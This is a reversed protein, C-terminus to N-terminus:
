RDHHIKKRKFNTFAPLELVPSGERFPLTITTYICDRGQLLELKQPIVYTKKIIAEKGFITKCQIESVRNPNLFQRCFQNPWSYDTYPMVVRFTHDTTIAYIERPNDRYFFDLHQNNKWKLNPTSSVEQQHARAVNRTGKAIVTYAALNFGNQETANWKTEEGSPLYQTINRSDIKWQKEQNLRKNSENEIIKEILDKLPIPGKGPFLKEISTLNLKRIGAKFKVKKDTQTAFVPNVEEFKQKKYIQSEIELPDFKRKKENSPSPYLSKPPSSTPTIPQSSM